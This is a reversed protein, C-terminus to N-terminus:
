NKKPVAPLGTYIKVNNRKTELEYLEETKQTIIESQRIPSSVYEVYFYKDSKKWFIENNIRNTTGDLLTERIPSNEEEHPVGDMRELTM